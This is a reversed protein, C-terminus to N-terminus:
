FTRIQNLVVFVKSTEKVIWLLFRKIRCDVKELVLLNNNEFFIKIKMERDKKELPIRERWHRRSKSVDDFFSRTHTRSVPNGKPRKSDTQRFYFPKAMKQVKQINVFITYKLAQKQCIKSHFTANIQGNKM